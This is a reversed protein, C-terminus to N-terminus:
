YNCVCGIPKLGVVEGEVKSKCPTSTDNLSSSMPVGILNNLLYLGQKDLIIRRCFTFICMIKSCQERAQSNHDITNPKNPIHQTIGHWTSCRQVPQCTRTPSVRFKTTQRITGCQTIHHRQLSLFARWKSSQSRDITSRLNSNKWVKYSHTLEKPKQEILEM